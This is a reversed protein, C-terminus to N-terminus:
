AAARAHLGLDAVVAAHDGGADLAEHWLHECALPTIDPSVYLRDMRDLGWSRGASFSGAIGRPSRHPRRVFTVASPGHPRLDAVLRAQDPQAELLSGHVDVLGHAPDPGVFGHQQGITPDDDLAGATLPDYWSNTDVGVVLPTPLSPLLSAMHAYAGEKAARGEGAANPTGWSVLTVPGEPHDTTAVLGREPKPLEDIVRVDRLPWRSAIMAGHPRQQPSEVLDLGAGAHWRGQWRQSWARSSSTSVALLLMVDADIREILPLRRDGGVRVDWFLVRLRKSM